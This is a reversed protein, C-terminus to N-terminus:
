RRRLRDLAARAAEAASQAQEVASVAREARERAQEAAAHADAQMQQAAALERALREVEATCAAAQQEADARAREAVECRRVADDLAGGAQLAAQEAAEVERKRGASRLDPGRKPRVDRETPTTAAAVAGELDVGGFGAFSLARVLLGSRVAQASPPDALAAELTSAVEARVAATVSRGAGGAAQEVVAEVLHRRQEGLARLEDGSGAAQAAALAPGLDLLQELLDSQERALQNVLWASVSPRRLAALAKAVEPQGAARAAKASADRAATFEEPTLGYLQEPTSPQEM